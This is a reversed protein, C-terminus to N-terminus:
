KKLTHKFFDIFFRETRKMYAPYNEFVQSLKEEEYKSKFFFLLLLLMTILIKYVSSTYLGYGWLTVLIGTYIPHRVYKYLGTEILDGGSIPTPFPSLNKNLQLLAILLVLIGIIAMILGVFSVYEYRNIKLVDFDLLYSIFLLFQIGVFAYDKKELKM